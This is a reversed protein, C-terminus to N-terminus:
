GLWWKVSDYFFLVLFYLLLSWFIISISMYVIVKRKNRYFREAIFCGVPTGIIPTIFALGGLGFKQKIRIIKRNGRTFIRKRHILNRKARFNHIAKLIADSMYTFLVIGSIGGAWSVLMVKIFNFKFVAIATPIGAKGFFFACTLFVTVIKLFESM